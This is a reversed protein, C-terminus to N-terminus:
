IIVNYGCITLLALLLGIYVRYISKETMKRNLWTGIFGGIIAFLVLVLMLKTDYSFFTGEILMSAIKSIQSFFITLLSYVTAQKMGCSFFLTLAAINLPGGGIGLFVSVAGLMFGTSFILCRNQIHYTRLKQKNLTYVLIVILILMLLISQTKSVIWVMENLQVILFNFIKEGAIGGLVSGLSLWVALRDKFKLQKARYQKTLSVICMSFVCCCSFYSIETISHAGLFDFLPKIIVGGGLGAIAGLTTAILTILIYILIMM